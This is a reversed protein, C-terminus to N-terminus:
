LLAFLIFYVLAYFDILKFTTFYFKSAREWNIPSYQIVSHFTSFYILKLTSLPVYHRLKFVMGCARSLMKITHDVHPQWSLKDDLIVGLYKINNTQPIVDHNVILKFSTAKPLKNGIIMNNSNKYNLTLKNRKLWYDVNNIEQNGKLQLMQINSPSMHLNTDDAFLTTEFKSVNPLDNVYLL